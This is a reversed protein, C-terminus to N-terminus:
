ESGIMHLFRVMAAESDLMGEDMNVDIIQAGNDVQDRAVSVATDYDNAKILKAFRASGTVNTREGVNVLLSDGDITMPELGSLRTAAAITPIPRPKAGVVARSIAAIHAPTTGCCGGALNITGAKAMTAIIAGMHEPTEDYLGLENPLGANPHVSVPVGAAVSLEALHPKLEDAGLACNLGVTLPRAHRVSNWFAETTQGSLTRGSRDTITGSIMLPVDLGTREVFSLYAHIAAKANLTDFITEIMLLDVGGEVLAELAEGYSTALQSFDVDRRAPDNVDPSISATRNTPGLSGMVYRPKDPTAATFEDAVRRAIRASALNMEAVQAELQYDAQAISTATFTNTIILDAGVALFSRHIDAILDPNTLSLVDYNGILDVPHDIFRDGRFAAEDLGQSQVSTGMAGDIVLIRDAMAETLAARCSPRTQAKSEPQAHAQTPVATMPKPSGSTNPEPQHHLAQCVAATLPSRNMTFFHFDTVGEAELRQCYEIAIDVAVQGSAKPDGELGEFAASLWTPITAGCRAAFRQIATFNTIPMVGPVLPSTIGAKAARQRLRLYADPEFSFQTIAKSAGAEIKAKLNDLDAQLSAAKPHVEPYAAVSIEFSAGDARARIARILDLATEHHDGPDTTSTSTPLPGDAPPDGRLAVIHSIGTARYADITEDIEHKTAGITTLHAAIPTTISTTLETLSHLTRDRSTGGAGYTVSVFSPSFASLETAVDLLRNHGKPTEPPFFEFSFMAM